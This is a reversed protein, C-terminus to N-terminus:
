RKGGDQKGASHAERKIVIKIEKTKENFRVYVQGDPTGGALRIYESPIQLRCKGDLKRTECLIM